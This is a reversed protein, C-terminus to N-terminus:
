LFYFIIESKVLKEYYKTIKYFNNENLQDPRLSLDIDLQKSVNNSDRFLKSFKKNIM